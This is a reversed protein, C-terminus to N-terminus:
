FVKTLLCIKGTISMLWLTFLGFWSVGNGAYCKFWFGSLSPAIHENGKREFVM